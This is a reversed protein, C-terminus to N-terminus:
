SRSGFTGNLQVVAMNLIAAFTVWALYPVLLWSALRSRLILSWILAAISAWLFVVEYLAWDPRQVRFFLVSWLLNLFLNFGFLRLVWTRTKADEATKWALVGSVALMAFISTWVPGFLWDPPQFAPKKLAFYWPSLDTVLAGLIGMATAALAAYLIPQWARARNGTSAM